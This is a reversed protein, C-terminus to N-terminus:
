WAAGIGLGVAFNELADAKFESNSRYVLHLPLSLAGMRYTLTLRTVTHDVRFLNNDYKLWEHVLDIRSSIKRPDDLSPSTIAMGLAAGFQEYGGGEVVLTEGDGLIPPLPLGPTSEAAPIDFTFKALNGWEYFVSAAVDHRTFFSNLMTMYEHTCPNENEPWTRKVDADALSMTCGKTLRLFDVNNLIGSSLTFRQSRVNAGIPGSRRLEKASYVIQPQNNVLRYFEGLRKREALAENRKSQAYDSNAMCAAVERVRKDAAKHKSFHSNIDDPSHVGVVQVDAEPPNMASDVLNNSLNDFWKINRGFWHWLPTLQLQYLSDDLPNDSGDLDRLLDTRQTDLLRSKLVPNIKPNPTLFGGFGVALWDTEISTFPGLAANLVGGLTHSDDIENVASQVFAFTGGPLLSPLAGALGPLPLPVATADIMEAGSSGAPLVKAVEAQRDNEVEDALERHKAKLLARCTGMLAGGDTCIAEASDRTVEMGCFAKSAQYMEEDSADWADPTAQASLPLVLALALVAHVAKETASM